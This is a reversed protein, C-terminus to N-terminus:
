IPDWGGGGFAACCCGLKQGMDITALCSSLDPHWKTRLYTKTWAVNHWVLVWRRREWFPCLLEGRVKQGTHITALHSSPDLHWKSPSLGRGLRCQTLHPGIEGWLFPCLLGWSKTGHRNHGFPRGDWCTSLEQVPVSQTRQLVISSRDTTDADNSAYDQCSTLPSFWTSNTRNLRADHYATHETACQSVKDTSSIHCDNREATNQQVYQRRRCWQSIANTCSHATQLSKITVDQETRRQFLKIITWRVNERSQHRRQQQKAPM